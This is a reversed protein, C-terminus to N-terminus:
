KWASYSELKLCASRSQWMEKENIKFVTMMPKEMLIKNKITETLLSYCVVYKKMLRKWEIFCSFPHWHECQYLNTGKPDEDMSWCNRICLLGIVHCLSHTVHLFGVLPLFNLSVMSPLSVSIYTPIKWM